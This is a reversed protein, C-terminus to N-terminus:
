QLAVYNERVFPEANIRHPPGGPGPGSPVGVGGDREERSSDLGRLECFAPWLDSSCVDSSWDSLCGTHRRSSSFFSAVRSRWRWAKAGRKQGSTGAARYTQTEGM